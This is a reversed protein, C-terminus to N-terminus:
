FYALTVAVIEELISSVKTQSTSSELIKDTAMVFSMNPGSAGIERSVVPNDM